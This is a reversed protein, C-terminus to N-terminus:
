YCYRTYRRLPAPARYGCRKLWSHWAKSLQEKAKVLTPANGGNLDASIVTTVWMYEERLVSKTISGIRETGVVAHVTTSVFQDEVWKIKM